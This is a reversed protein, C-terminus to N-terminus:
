FGARSDIAGKIEKGLSRLRVGELAEDTLDFGLGQMITKYGSGIGDWVQMAYLLDQAATPTALSGANMLASRAAKRDRDNPSFMMSINGATAEYADVLPGPTPIMSLPNIYWNSLDLGAEEGLQHLAYSVGAIKTTKWAASKLSRSNVISSGLFNIANLPWSGFQGLARGFTNSQWGLPNNLRGFRGAGQHANRAGLFKAANVPDRQAMNLFYQQSQKSGSDLLPGMLEALRNPDGKANNIARIAKDRTHIYLNGAILEYTQPQGSITLGVNVAKSLRTPVNRSAYEDATFQPLEGTASLNKIQNRRAESFNFLDVVADVGYVSALQTGSVVDRLALVPRGSLKTLTIFDFAQELVNGIRMKNGAKKLMAKAAIENIAEPTPVGRVNAIWEELLGVSVKNEMAAGAERMEELRDLTEDLLQGTTKGPFGAVPSKHHILSQTYRHVLQDIEMVRFDSPTIGVRQLEHIFQGQGGVRNFVEPIGQWKTIWPAYGTIPNEIQAITKSEDFFKKAETYADLAKKDWNFSKILDPTDIDVGRELADVYRLFKDDRLYGAPDKKINDFQQLAVQMEPKLKKMDFVTGDTYRGTITWAIYAKKVADSGGAAEFLDKLIGAMVRGDPSVDAALSALRRNELAMPIQRKVDESLDATAKIVRNSAQVLPKFIGQEAANIGNLFLEINRGFQVGVEPLGVMEGIDEALKMPPRLWRQTIQNHKIVNSAYKGLRLLRSKSAVPTYTVGPPVDYKSPLLQPLSPDFIDAQVFDRLQEATQFKFFRNGKRDILAYSGGDPMIRYGQANLKPFVATEFLDASEKVMRPLIGKFLTKMAPELGADAQQAVYNYVFQKFGDLMEIPLRRSQLFEQALFDFSKNKKTSDVLRIFQEALGVTFTAPNWVGNTGDSKKILNEGKISLMSGNQAEVKLKGNANVGRVIGARGNVTYVSEGELYGTRKYFDIQKQVLPQPTVLTNGNVARYLFPRKGFNQPISQDPIIKYRDLVGGEIARKQTPSNDIADDIQKRMRKLTPVDIGTRTSFEDLSEALFLDADFSHEFQLRPNKKLKVSRGMAESAPKEIRVVDPNFRKKVADFAEQTTNLIQITAGKAVQRFGAELWTDSKFIDEITEVIRGLPTDVTAALQKALPISPAAQNNIPINEALWSNVARKNAARTRIGGVGTALALNLPSAINATIAELSLEEPNAIADQVVFAANEAVFEEAINRGLNGIREARTTAVGVPLARAAKTLRSYVGVGAATGVTGFVGGALEDATAPRLGGQEDVIEQTFTTLFPEVFMKLGGAVVMPIIGATDRGIDGAPTERLYDVAQGWASSVGQAVSTGAEKTTNIPDTILDIVNGATWEWASIAKSRMAEFDEETIRERTFYGAPDQFLEAYPKYLAKMLHKSFDGIYALNSQEGEVDDEIYSNPASPAQTIPMAAVPASPPTQPLGTTPNAYIQRRMEELTLPVTM